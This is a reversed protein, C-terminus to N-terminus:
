VQRWKNITASYAASPATAQGNLLATLQQLVNVAVGLDYPIVGFADLQAQIVPDSAAADYGRDIFVQAMTKAREQLQGLETMLERIKGLYQAKQSDTSM